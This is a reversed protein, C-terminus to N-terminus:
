QRWVQKRYHNPAFGSVEKFSRSFHFVSKFGCKYAVEEVTLGTNRLMEMGRSIRYKWLYRIPTQGTAQEFTRIVHVKSVGALDALKELSIPQDYNLHIFEKLMIVIPHVSEFKNISSAEELYLLFASKCLTTAILNDREASYDMVSIILDMLRNMRETLPLIEPLTHLYDIFAPSWNGRMLHIWRHWTDEHPDFRLEEKTTPKLLMIQDPNVRVPSADDKYLQFSGTHLLVLQIGDQIRPGCRGSPPYVVTGTSIEDVQLSLLEDAFNLSPV